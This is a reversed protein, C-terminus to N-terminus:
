ESTLVHAAQKAQETHETSKVPDGLVADMCATFLAKLDPWAQSNHMGRLEVAVESCTKQGALLERAILRGQELDKDPDNECLHRLENDTM